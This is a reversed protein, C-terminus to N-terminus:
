GGIFTGMFLPIEQPSTIIILFPRDFTVTLQPPEPAMSEVVGVQTYAAAEIGSEDVGLRAQQKIVDIMVQNDNDYPYLGGEFPLTLGMDKSLDILSYDGDIDFSPVSLALQQLTTDFKMINSLTELNLISPLDDTPLVFQVISGNALPKSVMEFEESNQYHFENIENMFSLNINTQPTPYFSNSQTNSKDFPELWEDKLYITNILSMIMNPRTDVKVEKIFDYTMRNIWDNMQKPTDANQFDVSYISAYFDDSIQRMLDENFPRDNQLWISNALSLTGVENHFNLIEIDDMNITVNRLFEQLQLKTEDQAMPTVMSMALYFSLPSYIHNNNDFLLSASHSSFDKLASVLTPDLPQTLRERDSKLTSKKTTEVEITAGSVTSCSMLLSILILIIIKRM